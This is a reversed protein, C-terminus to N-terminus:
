CHDGGRRTEVASCCDTGRGGGDESKKGPSLERVCKRAWFGSLLPVQPPRTFGIISDGLAKMVLKGALNSERGQGVGKQSEFSWVDNLAEVLGAFGLVQVEQRDRAPGKITMRQFLGTAIGHSLPKVHWLLTRPQLILFNIRARVATWLIRLMSEILRNHLQVEARRAKTLIPVGWPFRRSVM